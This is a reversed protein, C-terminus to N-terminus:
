AVTSAKTPGRAPVRGNGNQRLRNDSEIVIRAPRERLLYLATPGLAAESPPSHVTDLYVVESGRNRAEDVLAAGPNRTRIV